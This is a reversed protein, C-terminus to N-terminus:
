KVDLADLRMVVAGLDLAREGPIRFAEPIRYVNGYGRTVLGCRKLQLMHKSANSMPIGIRRGIEASTLADEKLLEDLIRWRTGDSVATLVLNLPLPFTRTSASPNM